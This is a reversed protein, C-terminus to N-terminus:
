RTTPRRRHATLGHARESTRLCPAVDPLCRDAVGLFAGVGPAPPCPHRDARILAACPRLRGCPRAIRGMTPRDPHLAVPVSCGPGPSLRPSRCPSSSRRDPTPRGAAPTTNCTRRVACRTRRDASWVGRSDVRRAIPSIKVPGFISIAGINRCSRFIDRALRGSDRLYERGIVRTTSPQTAVASVSVEHASLPSCNSSLLARGVSTAGPASIETAVAFVLTARVALPSIPFSGNLTSFQAAMVPPGSTMWPNM